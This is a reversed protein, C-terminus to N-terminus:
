PHADGHRYDVPCRQGTQLHQLHCFAFDTALMIPKPRVHNIAHARFTVLKNGTLMLPIHLDGRKITFDGIQALDERIFVLDILMLQLERTFSRLRLGVAQILLQILDAGHVGAFILRQLLEGILTLFEITFNRGLLALEGFQLIHIAAHDIGRFVRHAVLHGIQAGPAIGDGHIVERGDCRRRHLRKGDLIQAGSIFLIIFIDLRQVFLILLAIGGFGVGGNIFEHHEREFGLQLVDDGM